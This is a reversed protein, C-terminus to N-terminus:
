AFHCGSPAPRLRLDGDVPALLLIVVRRGLEDSLRVSGVRRDAFAEPLLVERLAELLVRVQEGPVLVPVGREIGAIWWEPLPEDTAPQVGAVVADVAVQGGVPVLRGQDPHGLRLGRRRLHDGVLLEVPPDVLERGQQAVEALQLCTVPDGEVQRHDGVERHRHEGACPESDDVALHEAAEAPRRASLPDDVGLAADEDGHVAVVAVALEDVVLGLGVLRQRDRLLLPELDVLDQDPPTLRALVRGLARHDLPTVEEDVLHDRVVSSPHDLRDGHGRFRREKEHVGAAGGAPRLSALVAGASVERVHRAGRLVVLVDVGVVGVPAERVDAPDGAVGVDDVPGKRQARGAHHVLAHGGIGIRPPGPPDGLAEPHGGEVGRRRRDAHQALEAGVLRRFVAVVELVHRGDALGDLRLDPAPVVLDDALALRHDDVGPPLRLVAAEEAAGQGCDVGHLGAAAPRPDHPDIGDDIVLLALDDLRPATAGAVDADAVGPRSDELRDPSLGLPEDVGVVLLVAAVGLALVPVVPRVEGVVAGDEGGVAVEADDTPDVVHDVDGPM